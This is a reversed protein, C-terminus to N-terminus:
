CGLGEPAQVIPVADNLAANFVKGLKGHDEFSGTLKVLGM